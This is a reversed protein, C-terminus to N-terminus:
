QTGADRRKRGIVGLGVLAVGAMGFAAADPANSAETLSQGLGASGTYSLVTSSARLAPAVALGLSLSLLLGITKLM